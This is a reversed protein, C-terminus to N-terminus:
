QNEIAKFILNRTYSSFNLRSKRVLEEYKKYDEEDLVFQIIYSKKKTTKATYSKATYSKTSEEKIYSAQKTSENQLVENITNLNKKM